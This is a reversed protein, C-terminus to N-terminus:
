KVENLIHAVCVAQIGFLLTTKIPLNVYKERHLLEFVSPGFLTMVMVTYNAVTGYYKIHPIGHKVIEPGSCNIAGPPCIPFNSDCM